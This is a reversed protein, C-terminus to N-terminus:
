DQFARDGLVESAARDFVRITKLWEAIEQYEYVLRGGGGLRNLEEGYEVIRDLL